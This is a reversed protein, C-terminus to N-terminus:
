GSDTQPARQVVGCQTALAVCGSGVTEEGLWLRLDVPLSLDGERGRCGEQRRNLDQSLKLSFHILCLSQQLFEWVLVPISGTIAVSPM